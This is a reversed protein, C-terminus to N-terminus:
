ESPLDAVHKFYQRLQSLVQDDDTQVDYAASDVASIIIWPLKEGKKYGIFEGNIIQLVHGALEMFTKGQVRTRTDSFWHLKDAAAGTCEVESIEWESDLVASGFRQLIHILDFALFRGDPTSDTITIGRM